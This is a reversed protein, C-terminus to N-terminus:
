DDLLLLPIGPMIAKLKAFPSEYAGMDYGDGQPRSNGELDTSPAGSLTGTDICPSGQRLHFDGSAPSVFMPDANINGTGTYGGQIDSYIVTVSPTLSQLLSEDLIEWPGDGWLISNTVTSSCTYGNYMGGALYSSDLANYHEYYDRFMALNGSFTCNTVTASSSSFNYMGGGGYGATNGSFICNTVMPSSSSINSM